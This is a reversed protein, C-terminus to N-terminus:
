QLKRKTYSIRSQIPMSHLKVPTCGLSTMTDNLQSLHLDVDVIDADSAPNDVQDEMLDNIVQFIDYKRCSPCLKEGTKVHKRTIMTLEEATDTSIARLSKTVKCPNKDFPDCCYHLLKDFRILLVQEHHLCISSDQKQLHHASEARLMLLENDSDSLESLHRLGISCTHVAKHCEDQLLLGFICIPLSESHEAMNM